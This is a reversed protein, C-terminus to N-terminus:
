FPLEDDSHCLVSSTDRELQLLYTSFGGENKHYADEFRAEYASLGESVARGVLITAASEKVYKESLKALIKGYMNDARGPFLVEAAKEIAEKVDKIGANAPLSSEKRFYDLGYKWSPSNRTPTYEFQDLIEKLADKIPVYIPRPNKNTKLQRWASEIEDAIPLNPKPLKSQVSKNNNFEEELEWGFGRESDKARQECWSSCYYPQDWQDDYLAIINESKNCFECYVKSM